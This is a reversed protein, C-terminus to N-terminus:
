SSLRRAQCNTFRIHAFAWVQTPSVPLSSSPQRLPPPLSSVAPPPPFGIYFAGSKSLARWESGRLSPSFRLLALQFPFTLHWQLSRLGCVFGTRWPRRLSSRAGEARDGLEEMRKCFSSLCSGRAPARPQLATMLRHDLLLPQTVAAGM